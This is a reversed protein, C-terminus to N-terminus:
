PLKGDVTIADVRAGAPIRHVQDDLLFWDGFKSMVLPHYPQDLLWAWHGLLRM